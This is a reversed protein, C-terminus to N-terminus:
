VLLSRIDAVTATGTTGLQHIVISAAANALELAERLTAGAALAATLNAMVADGAGVVDIEGRRPHCAVHEVADAPAAGLIGRESLTVFVPQGHERALSLAAQKVEDLPLEAKAGTLSSLEAVNMKFCVPPYGRLSRRSDALILLRPHQHTLGRIAELVPRSVVGTEPLDVQDMLIFADVESALARV